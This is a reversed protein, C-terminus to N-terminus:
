TQRGGRRAREFAFSAPFAAFAAGSAGSWSRMPHALLGVGSARGPAFVPSGVVGLVIM